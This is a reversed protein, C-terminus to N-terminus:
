ITASVFFTETTSNHRHKWFASALTKPDKALMGRLSRFEGVSYISEAFVHGVASGHRLGQRNQKREIAQYGVFVPVLWGPYSRSYRVEGDGADQPTFEVIDLLADLPDKDKTSAKLLDSRDLLVFGAPIESLVTKLGDQGKAILVKTRYGDLSPFVKGGGFYMAPVLREATEILVADQVDKSFELSFILSVTVRARREDLIAAGKNARIKAKDELPLKVHGAMMSHDHVVVASGESKVSGDLASSLDLAFKHGLGAVATPAPFGAVIDPQQATMGDISVPGVVLYTSLSTM